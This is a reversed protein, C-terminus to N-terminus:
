VRTLFINGEADEFVDMDTDEFDTFLYCASEPLASFAVRTVTVYGLGDIWRQEM